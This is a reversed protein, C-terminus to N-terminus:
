NKIIKHNKTKQAPSQISILYLGSPWFKSNIIINNNGIIINENKSYVINGINDFINIVINQPQNSSYDININNTTPNPYVSIEDKKLAQIGLPINIIESFKYTLDRDIMKLRYYNNGLFPNPDTLTYNLVYTSNGAAVREGIYSFHIADTSKEVEFKLSNIENATKWNLINVAGNNYGNFSLLETPLVIPCDLNEIAGIEPAICFYNLGKVDSINPVRVGTDVLPSGDLLKYNNSATDTFAPYVNYGEKVQLMNTNYNGTIRRLIADLSDARNTPFCASPGINGHDTNVIGAAGYKSFYNDRTSKYYYDKENAVSEFKAANFNSYFINNISTLTRWNRKEIYFSFAFSDRAFVTNHIFFIDLTNKEPFIPTKDINSVTRGSSLKLATAWNKPRQGECSNHNVYLDPNFMNIYNSLTKVDRMKGFINRFIYVPGINPYVHSSITSYGVSINSLKNNWARANCSIEAVGMANYCNNITNNNFDIDYAPNPNNNDAKAGFTAVLGEFINNRVIINKLSATSYNIGIAATQLNRGFKGNDLLGNNTQSGIDGTQVLDSNKYAAHNWLGSNDTFTCGQIIANDGAGANTIEAYISTTNYEFTCSDILLNKCDRLYLASSGGDSSLGNNPSYCDFGEWPWFGTQIWSRNYTIKAKGYNKITLNKFIFRVNPGGMAQIELLNFFRSVTVKKQTVRPDENNALKIYYYNDTSRYFGSGYFDACNNLVDRYNGNLPTVQSNYLAAYPFLRVGDYRFLTSFADHQPLPQSTRYIHDAPNGFVDWVPNIISQATDSGDFIAQEGSASQIIVPKNLDSCPVRFSQYLLNGVNYLGGKCIIVSGCKVKYINGNNVNEYTNINCDERYRIFLDEFRGPHARSFLNGSGNPSVWLTDTVIPIIPEPQTSYTKTISDRFINGISDYIKVKIHYATGADLQLVSGIILDVNNIKQKVPTLAERWNLDTTKKFVVTSTYKVLPPGTVTGVNIYYGISNITSNATFDVAKAKQFYLVSILIFVHLIRM